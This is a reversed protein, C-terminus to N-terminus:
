HKFSQTRLNALDLLAFPLNFFEREELGPKPHRLFRLVVEVLAKEVHCRPDM